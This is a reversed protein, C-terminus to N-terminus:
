IYVVIATAIGSAKIFSDSAHKYSRARGGIQPPFGVQCTIK